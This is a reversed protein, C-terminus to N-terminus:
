LSKDELQNNCHACVIAMLTNKHASLLEEFLTEISRRKGIKLENIMARMPKGVHANTLHTVRTDCRPCVFHGDQLRHKKKIKKVAVANMAMKQHIETFARRIIWEAPKAHMKLDAYPIVYDRCDQGSTAVEFEIDQRRREVRERQAQTLDEGLLRDCNQLAASKTRGWALANCHALRAAFSKTSLTM